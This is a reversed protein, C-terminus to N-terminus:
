TIVFSIHQYSIVKYILTIDTSCQGGISSFHLWM